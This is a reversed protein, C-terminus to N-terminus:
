REGEKPFRTRYTAVAEEITPHGCFDNDERTRPTLTIRLNRMAPEVRTRIAHDHAAFVLLTLLDWQVTSLGGTSMVFTVENGSWDISRLPTSGVNMMTWEDGLWAAVMEACRAGNESIKTVGIARLYDAASM